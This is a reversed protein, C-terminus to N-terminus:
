RPTAGAKDMRNSPGRRLSLTVMTTWRTRVVRGVHHANSRRTRRIGAAADAPGYEWSWTSTGPSDGAGPVPEPFTPTGMGWVTPVGNLMRTRAQSVPHFVTVETVFATERVEVSALADSGAETDRIAPSIVTGTVRFADPLKVKETV